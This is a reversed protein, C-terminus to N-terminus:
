ISKGLIEELKPFYANFVKCLLGDSDNCFAELDDSILKLIERACAANKREMGSRRGNSSYILEIESIITIYNCKM